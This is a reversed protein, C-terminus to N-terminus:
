TSFISQNSKLIVKKNIFDIEEDCHSIIILIKYNDIKSLTNLLIKRTDTDLNSTAEDLIIIEKKGIMARLFAVIQSQGGSLGIGNQVIETDLGNEFRNVYSDLKNKNILNIVDERTADEKGYLINDLVTGKFLFINQSVIGIKSRLSRKDLTLYDQGNILIQGKTPNYLSTILKILTTKGSGNIGGLLIKDGEKFEDNFDNIIFESDDNYKFFLNKFSISQISEEFSISDVSCEDELSFFEKIRAITICVPKITIDLTGLSQAASLMKSTYMSFTTYLGITIENQLILIGSLFLVLLTVIDSALIINQIFFIFSLTQKLTNKIMTDLKNSVKNMHMSKANLLKIDEIGNLIEVMDGNFIAKSEHLKITSKSINNSSKKSILYYIPTIILCLITIKVNLNIMVILSVIFDVVAIFSNLISPTFVSGIQESESIRSLIYGKEKANLFNLPANIVNNIMSLRVENIVNQQVKSFFYQYVLTLLYKIIYIIFMLLIIKHLRLYSKEVLIIKDIIYGMLYPIPTVIAVSLIMSLIGLILYMKSNKTFKFLFRLNKYTTM